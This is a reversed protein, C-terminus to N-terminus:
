IAQNLTSVEETTMDYGFTKAQAMIEQIAPRALLRKAWAKIYPWDKINVGLFNFMWPM